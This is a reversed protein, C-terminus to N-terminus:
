ALSFAQVVEEYSRRFSQLVIAVRLTDCTVSHPVKTNLIWAEDDHATFSFFEQLCSPDLMYGDTQNEIKKKESQKTEKYFFTKGSGTKMYFNITAHSNSDIHPPIECSNIVMLFVEFENRLHEPLVKLVKAETEKSFLYYSVGRFYGDVEKGYRVNLTKKEKLYPTWVEKFSPCKFRTVPDM